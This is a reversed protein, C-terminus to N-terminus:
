GSSRNYLKEYVSRASQVKRVYHGTASSPIDDATCNEVPIKKENLWQAIRNQGAHYAAVALLDSGFKERLMSLYFVGYRINTSPDYLRETPHDADPELKGQLWGFTDPMIQMLGMAGADSRANPDFGSETRIVAYVLERDVGFEESCREVTSTYRMPYLARVLSQAGIIGALLLFTCAFLGFILKRRFSSSYYV